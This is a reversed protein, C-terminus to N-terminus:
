NDRQLGSHDTSEIGNNEAAKEFFDKGLSDVFFTTV